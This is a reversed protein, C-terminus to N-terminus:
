ARLILDTHVIWYVDLVDSYVAGCPTLLRRDGGQKSHELGSAELSWAVVINDRCIADDMLEEGFVLYGITDLAEVGHADVDSVDTSDDGLLSDKLAYVVARGLLLRAEPLEEAFELLSVRLCDDLPM